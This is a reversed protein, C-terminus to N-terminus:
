GEELFEQVKDEVAACAKYADSSRTKDLSYCSKWDAKNICDDRQEWTPRKDAPPYEKHSVTSAASKAALTANTTTASLLGCTVFLPEFENKLYFVNKSAMSRIDNVCEYYDDKLKAQYSGYDMDMNMEHCADSSGEELFEQVKDGM